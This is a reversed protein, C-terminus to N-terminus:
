TLKKYVLSQQLPHCFNHQPVCSGPFNGLLPKGQHGEVFVQYTHQPARIKLLVNCIEVRHKYTEILFQFCEQLSLAM